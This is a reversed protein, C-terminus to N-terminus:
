SKPWPKIDTDSVLYAKRALKALPTDSLSDSYFADIKANPYLKRLRKVKEAGYCNEEHTGTKPNVRSAILHIGLKDCLPKLIFEPSASIILDTSAKQKLYFPRLGQEHVEWFAKVRADMDKITRFYRYFTQKMKTKPILKLKYAIFAIGQSVIFRLITPDQKLNFKYFDMSSDSAYITKDFDYVNM